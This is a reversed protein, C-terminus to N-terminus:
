SLEIVVDGDFDTRKVVAGSEELTSMVWDVPHGFDNEGVSIVAVDAGVQELWNADSTGGGHHPVKLVDVGIPGLEDQAIVEIDGTLLMSRSVGSVMVVISEDNPGAYRRLPGLVTLTLEGLDWQQGVGPESIPVRAAELRLFLEDSAPTHHHDSIAWVQGIPIRGALGILGAAHDAHVHTLVVLELGRVGYEGMKEILRVQDPGGDVLALRGDGGSILISDGQGVDLVVVGPDPLSSQPGLFGAVFVLAAVMALPGRLSRFRIFTVAAGGIGLLGVVGIQPWTSVGRALDLVIGSLWAAIGVLPGVGGVGVAGVVTAASVIPAAILNVLPSLLPVRDFSIILIPAVAIQAGVTVALARRWHGPALPWRAGILVGATAAVSLQFGVDSALRPDFLLLGVVAASLLQWAELALGFLRGVLVGAAMVSARMVSPEFRTAAAYVPLGILGVVARRKPGIGLPGAVVALLGLFLAVNSGSVATFHSIGARRMAMVDIDDLGSTEGILFGALLARSDDLPELREMVRDRLGQGMRVIPSASVGVVDLASVRITSRYPQGRALGPLGNSVGIVSVLDSAQAPARDSLDLLVLGQGTEAFAWPGYRGDVIDSAMTLNARYPGAALPPLPTAALLASVAALTIAAAIVLSRRVAFLVLLAVVAL